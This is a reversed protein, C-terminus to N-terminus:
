FVTKEAIVSNLLKESKGIKIPKISKRLVSDPCPCVPGIADLANNVNPLVLSSLDSLTSTDNVKTPDIATYFSRKSTKQEAEDYTYEIVAGKANVEFGPHNNLDFITREVNGNPDTKSVVNNSADYGIQHTIALGDPDVITALTRGLIDTESKTERQELDSLDGQREYSASGDANLTSLTLVNLGNPNATTQPDKAVLNVQGKKNRVYATHTGGPNEKDIVRGQTDNEYSTTLKAGAPDVVESSLHGAPTHAYDTELGAADTHSIKWGSLDFAQSTAQGLADEESVVSGGLDYKTIETAGSPHIKKIIKNFANKVFKKVRKLPSTIETQRITQDYSYSTERGLADTKTKVRGFADWTKEWTSAPKGQDAPSLYSRARGLVDRAYSHVGGRKDTESLVARQANYTYSEQYKLGAPDQTETELLGRKTFVRATTLNRTEDVPEVEETCRRFADFTKSHTYNEPDVVTTKLGRPDYTNVTISDGGTQLNTLDTQLAATLFGGALTPLDDKPCVTEYCREEAVQDFENYTNQIIGGGADVSVVLQRVNNYYFVSRNGLPDTTTLRLGTDDYTHTISSTARVNELAEEKEESSVNEDLMLRAISAAARPTLESTIQGFEDFTYIFSRMQTSDNEDSKYEHTKRGMSDYTAGESSADSKVAKTKRNLQDYTLTESHDETDTAPVLDALNTSSAPNVTTAYAVSEEVLGNASRNLVTLADGADVYGTKQGKLDHYYYDTADATAVPQLSAQVTAWDSSVAVPTAYTIGSIPKGAADLTLAKVFGEADQHAIKHSDSDLFDYTYEDDPSTVIPLAGQMDIVRPEDSALPTAYKVAGIRRNNSTDYLIETVVGAGDVEYQLREALDYLKSVKRSTATADVSTEAVETEHIITNLDDYATQMQDGNAKTTKVERGQPDFTHTTQQQDPHTTTSKRGAADRGYTTTRTITGNSETLDKLLGSADVSKTEILGNAKTTATKNTTYAIATANGLADTKSTLRQLGDYTSTTTNTVTSSQREAKTLVQGFVNYTFVEQGMQDDSVGNGSADLTAYANSQLMLGQDNYEFANLQTQTIDQTAIWTDVTAKPVATAPTFTSTDIVGSLFLRTSALNGDADYNFAKVAGMPTITYVLQRSSNYVFYSTLPTPTAGEYIKQAILAGTTQDHYTDVKNSVANTTTQLLGQADYDFSTVADNPRTISSVRQTTTDYTYKTVEPTGSVTPKRVAELQDSTNVVFTTVKKLADTITAGDSTYALMSTRNVGDAISTLRNSSDFAFSMATTDDQTFDNLVGDKYNYTTTYNTTADIPIMTTLLNGSSDLKYQMLPTTTQGVTQAVTIHTADVYDITVKQGSQGTITTLRNSSDYVFSLGRSQADVRKIEQGAANFTGTVGSGIEHYSWTGDANATLTRNGQEGGVALYTQTTANYTYVTEHGDKEILTVTSGATNKTGTLPGISKAAALTWPTKAQHNYVYGIDINLGRDTLTKHHDRIFLNGNAVNAGVDIKAQGLSRSPLADGLSSLSSNLTGFNEGAFVSFPQKFM